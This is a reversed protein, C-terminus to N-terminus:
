QANHPSDKFDEPPWVGHKSLTDPLTVQRAHLISIVDCRRIAVCPIVEASIVASPVLVSQDALLCPTLFFRTKKQNQEQM